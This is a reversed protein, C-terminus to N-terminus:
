RRNEYVARDQHEALKIKVVGELQELSLSGDADAAFRAAIFLKSIERGSFGQLRQSLKNLWADEFCARSVRSKPQSFFGGLWLWGRRQVELLPKEVMQHLYLRCLEFRERAGPLDVLLSVDM